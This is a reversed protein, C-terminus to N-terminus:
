RNVGATTAAHRDAREQWAPDAALNRNEDDDRQESNMEDQSRGKHEPTRVIVPMITRRALENWQNLEDVRRRRLIAGADHRIDGVGKGVEVHSQHRRIRCVQRQSLVRGVEAAQAAM